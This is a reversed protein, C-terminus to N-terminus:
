KSLYLSSIKLAIDRFAQRLQTGDEANYFKSSDSACLSLTDIATQNGGLNFGITYVTLGYENKKMEACLARAQTASDGNPSSCNITGDNVGNCYQTNYEGDTMLIVIKQLKAAHYAAPQSTSPWLYAWKPSLMYWAWATGIHGATSGGATFSDISAKLADKNNTLPMIQNIPNCNGYADPYARGVPAADPGTDKYAHAGTRETVCNGIKYTATGGYRKTFTYKDCGPTSCTGATATGRVQSAYSGVNVYYAFPVLAVKSTYKSQDAWVVIDILDKAAAKLDLIKQGAMSGTVDLMMSIEISNEANGGVALTSTSYDSGSLNLLPLQEIGALSLFPTKIYANGTATFSLNNNTATFGVTDSAVPIRDKINESYYQKASLVAGSVNTGDLQLMRGGALVGADLASTTVSRAHLWRGIDIAGGMMLFMATALLGFTIMVQGSEDREFRALLRKGVRTRGPPAPGGMDTTPVTIMTTPM